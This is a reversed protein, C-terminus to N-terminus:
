SRRFKRIIVSLFGLGFLAITMPEPVAQINLANGGSGPSTNIELAQPPAVQALDTATITASDYYWDGVGPTDDQFVRAYYNGATFTSNWYPTPSGGISAYLWEDFVVGDGGAPTVRFTLVQDDVSVYGSGSNSPDVIDIVGNAGCWVLQWLVANVAAVGTGPTVSTVDPAGYPYMGYGVTWNISVGAMASLSVMLLVIIMIGIKHM